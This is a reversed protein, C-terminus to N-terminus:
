RNKNPYKLGRKQTYVELDSTKLTKKFYALAMDTDFDNCSYVDITAFRRKTFTHISIHSEEIIVFGSWGGPDKSENGNAFVVYPLTMKHMDIKGPLEDLIKYVAGADGLIGEDCDYADIMLHVGFNTVEVQKKM